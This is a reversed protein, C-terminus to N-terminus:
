LEHIFPSHLQQLDNIKLGEQIGRPDFEPLPVVALDGTLRNLSSTAALYPAEDTM